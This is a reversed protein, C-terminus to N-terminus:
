ENLKFVARDGIGMGNKKTFGANVELVYNIPNPPLYFRPKAPDFENSVNEAIDVIIGDDIWIIDIPFYMDPMWFQYREKQPFIFLMGSKPHLSPRGSLGKQIAAETRAVEVPIKTRGIQVFPVAIKEEALPEASVAPGSLINAPLGALIAGAGFFLAVIIIYKYKSFFNRM